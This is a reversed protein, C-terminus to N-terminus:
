YLSDLLKYLFIYDPDEKFELAYCYKIFKIINLHIPINKICFDIFNEKITIIDKKNEWPLYGLLLYVMIYCLSILDDRRSLAINKHSNISAYRFTGTISNTTTQDIHNGDEIYLKSLGYDIIYVNKNGIDIVFNDPKIDRHILNNKHFSEICTLMKISLNSISKPGLKANLKYYEGISYDYLDVILYYFLGAKGFSRLAPIGEKKQLYKYIKAEHCLMLHNNIDELKIAVKKSTNINIGEFIKGFSGEGIKKILKYKREVLIEQDM